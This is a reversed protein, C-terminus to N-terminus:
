FLEKAREPFFGHPWPVAFDGDPTIPIHKVEAGDEGKEVFLVSIDDPTIPTHGKPLVGNSTERIRRLLRLLLHESHTELLFLNKRAGLASEIFVDALEAQLSPHVHLEPQEILIAKNVSAFAAVVLPLLQSLGVGIDRPSVEKGSKRDVLLVQDVGKDNTTDMLDLTLAKAMDESPSPFVEPSATHLGELFLFVKRAAEVVGPDDFVHHKEADKLSYNSTITSFVKGNSSEPLLKMLSEFMQDLTLYRKRVVEYPTDFAECSTFWKNIRARVDSRVFLTEWLNDSIYKKELKSGLLPDIFLSERSGYERFPGYYDMNEILSQLEAAILYTSISLDDSLKSISKELATKGGVRNSQCWMNVPSSGSWSLESNIERFIEEQDSNDSNIDIDGAGDPLLGRRSLLKGWVSLASGEFYYSADCDWGGKSSGLSSIFLEGNIWFDSCVWLDTISHVDDGITVQFNYERSEVPAAWFELIPLPSHGGFSLNFSMEQGNFRRNHAQLWGGLDVMGKALEPKRVDVESTRSVEHLYLLSHLVSSKGASNPGFIITIPRIPMVQDPGFAKFGGLSYRNFNHVPFPMTKGQRNKLHMRMFAEALNPKAGVHGRKKM